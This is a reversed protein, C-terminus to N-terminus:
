HLIWFDQFVTPRHSIIKTYESQTDGCFVTEALVSTRCINETKNICHLFASIDEDVKVTEKVILTLFGSL